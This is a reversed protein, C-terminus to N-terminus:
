VHVWLVPYHISWVIWSTVDWGSNTQIVRGYWWFSTRTLCNRIWLTSLTFILVAREFILPVVCDCCFHCWIYGRCANCLVSMHHRAVCRFVRCVVVCVSACLSALCLVLNQSVFVSARWAVCSVFDSKFVCDALVVQVSNKLALCTESKLGHPPSASKSLESM